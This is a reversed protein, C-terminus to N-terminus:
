ISPWDRSPGKTEPEIYVEAVKENADRLQKELETIQEDMEDATMDEDFSVDATVVVRNQGFFVSRFDRVGRVGDWDNVIDELKQEADEPLSEGLLLRKNEWALAIAFGMLLLGILLAAIGDYILNGTIRTLYLGILAIVLGALAVSDETFATLTTVESTKKFTEVLNWDHKRKIRKMGNYAKMWAWGEFFMAGILVGYSVWVGPLAIDIVPINATGTTLHGEGHVIVNYGESASAYGAIGFLLVSVLFSYFFQSKGYGFPHKQNAEKKSYRIGILLFVQNGTDSLSHYTESFMAASGTLLFGIFKLITIIANAILAAIVVGKSEAMTPLILWAPFFM